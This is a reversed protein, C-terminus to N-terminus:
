MNLSRRRLMPNAMSMTTASGRSERDTSGSNTEGPVVVGGGPVMESENVVGDNREKSSREKATRTTKLASTIAVMWEDRLRPSACVFISMEGRRQADGSVIQFMSKSGM